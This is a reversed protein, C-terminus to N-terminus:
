SSQYFFIPVKAYNQPFIACVFGFTGGFRSFALIQHIENSFCLWYGYTLTILEVSSFLLQGKFLFYSELVPFKVACVRYRLVCGIIRSKLFEKIWFIINLRIFSCKEEIETVVRFVLHPLGRKYCVRWRYAEGSQLFFIFFFLHSIHCTVRSVHCIVHSVKPPTFM